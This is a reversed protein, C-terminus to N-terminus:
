EHQDLYIKLKRKGNQIYSKVKKMDFGTEDSIERYSKNEYYFMEICRRQHEPLNTLAKSLEESRDNEEGNLHFFDDSEMIDPEIKQNFRNKRILGLCHNKTVVYLWSKFNRIDQRAVKDAAIEFIQMVADKGSEQDKLYKLAVGYVLHMYRHYLTGLYELNGSERYHNLLRDDDFM